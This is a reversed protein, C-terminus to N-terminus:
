KKHNASPTAAISQHAFSAKM